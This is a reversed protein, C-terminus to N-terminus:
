CSRNRRTHSKAPSQGWFRRMPGLSAASCAPSRRACSRTAASCCRRRGTTPTPISSGACRRGCRGRRRAWRIATSTCGITPGSPRRAARAISRATNWPACPSGRRPSRDARPQPRLPRARRAGPLRDPRAQVETVSEGWFARVRRSAPTDIDYHTIPEGYGYPGLGTHFDIVAVDSRGKLFKDTIAHLTRNSWAPGGGGFFMGDPHSYQGGSVARFYAVDGVKKRYAALKADAAAVGGASLDAPVLFDAIELYGENVPYPKSHDVYNRNLDNGEETVRRTWAFGYPNIAHVFVAATDKPLGAAGVSALWDVQFGSGCYGEVGHTSSITVVVKSADDPGLRAVDTSLRRAGRGRPRITTAIPRPAPSAPRRWSSTARRATTPPSPISTPWPLASGLNPPDARWRGRARPRHHLRGRRVGAPARRPCYRDAPRAPALAAKKEWVARIEPNDFNTRTMGTYIAGPCVYNATINFKGLELALTRTLGGVGAKSACYAALGYDTDFAMVSATNVIRARGKERARAKLAPIAERCIRFMARVNVGNVRDWHEDTMEEVFARGSVGANNFLIDIAGFKALAAAVIKRPADDGTIDCAFAAIANNGAHAQEIASEPRDVALVQAGEDAFLKASAAGIGSAAGTVIAIKGALRGM